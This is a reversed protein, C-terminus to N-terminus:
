DQNILTLWDILLIIPSFLNTYKMIQISETEQQAKTIMQQWKHQDIIAKLEVPLQDFDLQVEVKIDDSHQQSNDSLVQGMEKSKWILDDPIMGQVAKRHLYRPLGHRLKYETPLSLLKRM